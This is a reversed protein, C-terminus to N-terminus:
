RASPVTACRGRRARACGTPKRGRAAAAVSGPWSDTARRNASAPRWSTRESSRGSVAARDQEACGRAASARRGHQEVAVVVDHRGAVLTSHSEGGKSGVSRSPATKPRPAASVFDLTMAWTPASRAHSPLGGTPMLSQMSPHSSIPLPANCWSGVSRGRATRTRRSQDDGVHAVDAGPVGVSVIAAARCPWRARRLDAREGTRLVAALVAAGRRVSQERQHVRDRDSCSALPSTATAPSRRLSM